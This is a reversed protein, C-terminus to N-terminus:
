QTLTKFSKFPKFSKFGPPYFHGLGSDFFRHVAFLQVFFEGFQPQAAVPLVLAILLAHLRPQPTPFFDIRCQHFGGFDDPDAGVGKAAVDAQLGAALCQGHAKLDDQRAFGGRRM